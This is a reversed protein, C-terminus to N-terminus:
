TTETKKGLLLTSQPRQALNRQNLPIFFKDQVVRSTYVQKVINEGSEPCKGLKSHPAFM